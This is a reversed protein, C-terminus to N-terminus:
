SVLTSLPMWKLITQVASIHNLREFKDTKEDKQRKTKKDKQRETKKDEQRETM